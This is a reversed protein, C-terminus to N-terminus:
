ETSRVLAPVRLAFGQNALDINRQFVLSANANTLRGAIQNRFSLTASANRKAIPQSPPRQFSVEDISVQISSVFGFGVVLREGLVDDTLIVYGGTDGDGNLAADPDHDYRLRGISTVSLRSDDDADVDTPVLQVQASYDSDGLPVNNGTTTQWLTADLQVNFLGTVELDDNRVGVTRAPTANAIATARV